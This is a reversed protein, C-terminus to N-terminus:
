AKARTLVEDLLGDLGPVEGFDARVQAAIEERGAGDLAMNMAVLRAAGADSASVEPASGNAPTGNGAGARLQAILDDTSPASGAAPEDPAPDPTPEPVPDPM